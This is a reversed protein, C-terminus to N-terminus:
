TGGQTTALRPPLTTALAHFFHSESVSIVHLSRRPVGLRPAQAVAANTGPCAANICRDRPSFKPAKCARCRPTPNPM